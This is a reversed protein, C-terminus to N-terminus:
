SVSSSEAEVSVSSAGALALELREGAAVVQGEDDAREEGDRRRHHARHQQPRTRSGALV